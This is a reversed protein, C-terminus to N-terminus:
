PTVFGFRMPALSAGRGALIGGRPSVGSAGRGLTNVVTSKGLSHSGSVAIRTHSSRPVLWGAFASEASRGTLSAVVGRAAGRSGEDLAITRCAHTRQGPGAAGEETLRGFVETLVRQQPRAPQQGTM